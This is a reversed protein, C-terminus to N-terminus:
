TQGMSRLDLPTNINVLSRLSPDLARLRSVPVYNVDSLLSIMSRCNREGSRLAKGTAVAAEQVEYGACLPEVKGSEWRPVAASHSVASDHMLRMIGATMFPTDCALVVTYGTGLIEFATLMGGLPSEVDYSDNEVDVGKPLASEFAARDKKGIVVLVKQSAKLAEDAIESVFPRGGFDLFAKDSQMRSSKGGALITVSM